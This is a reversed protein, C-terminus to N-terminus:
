KANTNPSAVTRSADDTKKAKLKKQSADLRVLLRLWLEFIDASNPSKAFFAQEYRHHFTTLEITHLNPIILLINTSDYNNKRVDMLNCNLTKM